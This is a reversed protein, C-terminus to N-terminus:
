LFDPSRRTHRSGCSSFLHMGLSCKVSGIMSSTPRSCSSRSAMTKEFASKAEPYQCTLSSSSDLRRVVNGVQKPLYLYIRRGNPILPGNWYKWFFSTPARCSRCRFINRNRLLSLLMFMLMSLNSVLTSDRVKMYCRREFSPRIMSGLM